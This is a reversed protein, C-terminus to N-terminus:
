HAHLDPLMYYYGCLVCLMSAACARCVWRWHPLNGTVFGALHWAVLLCDQELVHACVCECVNACYHKFLRRAPPTPPPPLHRYSKNGLLNSTASTHEDRSWRSTFRRDADTIEVPVRYRLREQLVVEMHIHFCPPSGFALSKICNCLWDSWFLLAKEMWSIAAAITINRHLATAVTILTILSLREVTYKPLQRSLLEPRGRDLM